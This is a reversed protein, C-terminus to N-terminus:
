VLKRRILVTGSLAAGLLVITTGGDPVSATSTSQFTFSAGSNGFGLQWTGSTIDAPNGDSITGTGALNLQNASTFTQSESTVTFTYTVLGVAVSWLQGIAPGNGNVGVSSVFSNALFSAGTFDGTASLVFIPSSISVSTATSLDGATTEGVPIYTGAFGLSGTITNAQVSAGLGLSVAACALYKVLDSQM